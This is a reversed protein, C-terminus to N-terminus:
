YLLVITKIKPPGSSLSITLCYAPQAFFFFRFTTMFNLQGVERNKTHSLM